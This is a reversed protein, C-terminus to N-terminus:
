FVCLWLHVLSQLVQTKASLSEEPKAETGPGTPPTCGPYVTSVTGVSPHVGSPRPLAWQWYWQHSLNQWFPTFFVSFILVSAESAGSAYFSQNTAQAIHKGTTEKQKLCSLSLTTSSVLCKCRITRVPHVLWMAPIGSVTWSAWLACVWSLRWMYLVCNVFTSIRYFFSNM